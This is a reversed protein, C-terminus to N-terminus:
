CYVKDLVFFDSPLSTLRGPRLKKPLHTMQRNQCLLLRLIATHKFFRIAVHLCIGALCIVLGAINTPSYQDGNVAAALYLTVVEKFIGAISLTLSSSNCVVLFEAVELGFALCAGFVFYGLTRCTGLYDHSRFLFPSTLFEDGELSFALPLLVLAMWPQTHYIVDIPNSLGLITHSVYLFLTHFDVFCFESQQTVKQATTWRIGSLASAILVLTFGKLDFQTSEYTFMFLGTSISLVIAVIPISLKELKFVIAFILIFIVSTSKTMTYLSITIFEFSWNSLGIDLASAICKPKLTTLTKARRM